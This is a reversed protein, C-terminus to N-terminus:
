NDKRMKEIRIFLQLSTIDLNRLPLILHYGLNNIRKEIDKKM